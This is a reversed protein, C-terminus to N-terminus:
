LASSKSDAAWALAIATLFGSALVGEFVTVSLNHLREFDQRYPNSRSAADISGGASIRDAEMHPIIAFQSYATLGLMVVVLVLPAIVNRAFARTRQAAALLLILLVGAILGENHLTKLCKAVITGALHTDPLSSFSAWAVIPFFMLGGLWLILLLLILVRLLTRM